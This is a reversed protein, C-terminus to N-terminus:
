QPKVIRPREVMNRAEGARAMTEAFEVAERDAKAREVARKASELMCLAMEPNPVAIGVEIRWTGADVLKIVISPVEESM